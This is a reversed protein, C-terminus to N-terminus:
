ALDSIPSQKAPSPHGGVGQPIRRLPTGIDSLDDSKMQDPRRFLQTLFSLRDRRYVLSPKLPQSVKQDQHSTLVFQCLHQPDRPWIEPPDQAPFLGHRRPHNLPESPDTHKVKVGACLTCALVEHM